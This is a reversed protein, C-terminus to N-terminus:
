VKIRRSVERGSLLLVATGRWWSRAVAAPLPIDGMSVISGKFPSITTTTKASLSPQNSSVVWSRRPPNPKTLRFPWCGMARLGSRLAVSPLSRQNISPPLGSQNATATPSQCEGTAAESREASHNQHWEALCPLESWGPDEQGAQQQLGGATNEKSVGAAEGVLRNFLGTTLLPRRLDKLNMGASEISLPLAPRGIRFTLACREGLGACDLRHLQCFSRCFHSHLRPQFDFSCWFGM